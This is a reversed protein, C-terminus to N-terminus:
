QVVKCYEFIVIELKLMITRPMQLQLQAFQPCTQAGDLREKTMWQTVHVLKTNNRM